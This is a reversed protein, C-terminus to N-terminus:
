DQPRIPGRYSSGPGVGQHTSGDPVNVTVPKQEDRKRQKRRDYPTRPHKLRPTNM